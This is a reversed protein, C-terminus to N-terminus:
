ITEMDMKKKAAYMCYCLGVNCKFGHGVGLCRPVHSARRAYRSPHSLPHNIVDSVTPTFITYRFHKGSPAVRRVSAGTSDGPGFARNIIAIRIGHPVEGPSRVEEYFCM